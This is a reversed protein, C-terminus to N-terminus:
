FMGNVTKNKELHPSFYGFGLSISLVARLSLPVQNKKKNQEMKWNWGSFCREISKSTKDHRM